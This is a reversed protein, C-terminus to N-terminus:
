MHNCQPVSKLNEIKMWFQSKGFRRHTPGEQYRELDSGVGPLHSAAEDWQSCGFEM